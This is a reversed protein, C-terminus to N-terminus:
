FPEVLNTKFIVSPFTSQSVAEYILCLGQGSSLYGGQDVQVQYRIGLDFHPNLM